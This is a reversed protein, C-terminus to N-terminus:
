RPDGAMGFAFKGTRTNKMACDCNPHVPPISNTDGTVRGDPYLYIRANGELALCRDCLDSKYRDFVYADPTDKQEETLKLKNAVWKLARGIARFFAGIM